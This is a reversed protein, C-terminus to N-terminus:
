AEMLIKKIHDTTKYFEVSNAFKGRHKSRLDKVRVEEIITVPKQSFVLIRDALHVAEDIDHTILLLAKKEKRTLSLLEEYLKHRLAYDLSAFAEDMIIFEPNVSLARAFSLRKKMGGSLEYGKMKSSKELGVLRLYKQIAGKNACALTMNEEVTLWEFIDGSQQITICHKGPHRFTKGGFMIAGHKPMIYGAFLNALTSKGCGSPGVIAVIENKYITLDFNHFLAVEDAPYGYSIGRARAAIKTTAM